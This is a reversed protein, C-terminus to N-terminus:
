WARAQEEGGGDVVVGVGRSALAGGEGLVWKNVRKGCSVRGWRKRCERGWLGWKEGGVRWCVDQVLLASVSCESEMEAWLGVSTGWPFLLNM